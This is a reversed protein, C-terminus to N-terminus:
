IIRMQSLLEQVVVKPELHYGRERAITFRERGLANELEASLKPVFPTFTPPLTGQAIVLGLWAAATEPQGDACMWHAAAFLAQILLPKTGIEYAIHLAEALSHRTTIAEGLHILAIVYNSQITAIIQRNGMERSISLSEEYYGRAAAYEECGSLLAGLGSLSWAMDPRDGIERALSLSEAYCARATETKSLGVMLDGLNILAVAMNQRDGVERSFSLSEEYCPQAAAYNGESAYVLGLNALATNVGNREGIQRAINMSAEYYERAPAYSGLNAYMAGLNNLAPISAIPDNLERCIQLGEMYAARADAYEGILEHAIGLTILTRAVSLRDGSARAATVARRGQAKAEAFNGRRWSTSCLGDLAAAQQALDIGPIALCDEFRETALSFDGRHEAVRGWVWLLRARQSADAYPLSRLIWHEAQDYHATIDAFRRVVQVVYPLARVMDDAAHWHEALTELYAANDPYVTELALAIQRHLAPREWDTLDVLLTERLKDHSFRLRDDKVELVAAYVCITSWAEWDMDRSAVKLIELDIQRGAVAALKLAPRAWVPVRELRRRIVSQVGGAMVGRPLSMTAIRELSGAEEALARVVEVLFFTNGDTERMLLEVLQPQQETQGLMAASLQAVASENLRPLILTRMGPLEAPLSPREDNRYSGVIMLPLHTGFHLLAKLLVLSDTAWQLDEVVLLMPVTQRKFLDTLTQALRNHGAEGPLEPVDPVMRELLRDINPILSKLIGAEFDSLDTTLILRRVSERWLQYPMGGGEVAQGHVVLVGQVLAHARLEDILRSKGVGSEGGILWASGQGQQTQSLAEILQKLEVARGVFKAAQLFSERTDPTEIWLEQETAGSLAHIVTSADPYRQAPEKALLRELVAATPRDLASLDPRESRIQDILHRADHVDFPHHGLLLECAIMGVAYLDSAVSAPQGQLIEPAMFALSGVTAAEAHEIAVSLGFDLVKILGATVLVNNPKLDRHLIGHRHLYILASLLQQVLNIKFARAQDRGAEIITQPQDLLDLTFFPRHQADFGYDHVAIIHPHRLSALVGFEQALALVPNQYAHSSAFQLQSPPVAVHKLAITDGTLRDYARYVTSMGGEGLVDLLRYRANIQPLDTLAM